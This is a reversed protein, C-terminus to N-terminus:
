NRGIAGVFDPLTNLDVSSVRFRGYGHLKAWKIADQIRDEHTTIIEEEWNPLGNKVAWLVQRKM